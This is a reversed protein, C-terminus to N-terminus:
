ADTAPEEEIPPSAPADASVSAAAAHEEAHARALRRGINTRALAVHPAAGALRHDAYWFLERLIAFLPVVIVLGIFGFVAGAVVLLLIIM